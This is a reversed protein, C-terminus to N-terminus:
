QLMTKIFGTPEPKDPNPSVFLNCNDQETCEIKLAAIVQWTRGNDRIRILKGNDTIGLIASDDVPMTVLDVFHYITKIEQFTKGQDASYLLMSMPERGEWSRAKKKVKYPAIHEGHSKEKEIMGSDRHSESYDPARDSDMANAMSNAHVVFLQFVLLFILSGM